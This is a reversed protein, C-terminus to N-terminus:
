SKITDISHWLIYSGLSILHKPKNRITPSFKQNVNLFDITIWVNMSRQSQMNETIAYGYEWWKLM